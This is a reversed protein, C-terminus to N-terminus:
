GGFLGRIQELLREIANSVEEDDVDPLDIGGDGDDGDDTEGGDVEGADSDQEAQEVAEERAAVEAERAAVAAEREDLAQEREDLATSRDDLAERQAVLDEDRDGAAAEAEALQAELEAVRADREDITAQAEELEAAGADAPLEDEGSTSLAVIVFALAFGLVAGGLGIAIERLRNHPPEEEGDEGPAAPPAPDEGAPPVSGLVETPDQGRDRDPRGEPAMRRTPDDPENVAM